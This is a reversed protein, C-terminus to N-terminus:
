KRPGSPMLGQVLRETRCLAVKAADLELKVVDVAAVDVLEALFKLNFRLPTTLTGDCPVVDVIEGVDARSATLRLVDDDQELCVVPVDTEALTAVRNLADTLLEAPMELREPSTDRVFTSLAPYDGELLRTTWTTGGSTFTANFDGVALQAEGDVGKLVARITEAPITAELVEVALDAIALRYRDTGYATTGGVHVGNFPLDKPHAFRAVKGLLAIATADLTVPDADCPQTLPWADPDATNVSASTDGGVINLADDCVSLEIVDGAMAAVISTLLGAPALVVGAGGVDAARATTVTLDLNSCTVEIRGETCEIRVGTLVPLSRNNAVPTTTKLASLLASREVRAKV